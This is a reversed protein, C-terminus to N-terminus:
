VVEYFCSWLVSYTAEIKFAFLCNRISSQVESVYIIIPRVFILYIFALITRLSFTKQRGATHIKLNSSHFIGILVVTAVVKFITCYLIIDIMTFGQPSTCVCYVTFWIPKNPLIKIWLTKLKGLKIDRRYVHCEIGALTPFVSYERRKGTNIKVLLPSISNAKLSFLKRCWAVDM